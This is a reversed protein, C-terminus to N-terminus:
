RFLSRSLRFQHRSPFGSFDPDNRAFPYESLPNENERHNKDHRVIALKDHKVLVRKNHKPMLTEM